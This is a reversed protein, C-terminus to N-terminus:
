AIPLLIANNANKSQMRMVVRLTGVVKSKGFQYFLGREWHHM